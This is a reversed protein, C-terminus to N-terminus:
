QPIHNRKSNPMKTETSRSDKLFDTKEELQEVVKETDFATPQTDLLAMISGIDNRRQVNDFYEADSQIERLIRRFDDADILRSM